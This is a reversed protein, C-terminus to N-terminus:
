EAKANSAKCFSHCQKTDTDGRDRPACTQEQQQKSAESCSKCGKGALVVDVRLACAESTTAM